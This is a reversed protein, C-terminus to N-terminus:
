RDSKRWIKNKEAEKVLEDRFDPHAIQILSEAREWTSKGILNAMGWETVIFYACSRPDSVITGSQFAPVIRSKHRNEKKDFYTSTMCIFSKGGKSLFGGTLFDLQGGTGSIQRFGSSESSVQGFLDAEVCNNITIMKDNLAMIEPSNVYDVPYSLHDRNEAVWEYVEHSGLAFTWVSKGKDINKKSNTIKGSRYLDYFADSMLETHIGLDKLDSQAIFKGVASPVSGIGLEITSGDEIQDVIQKAIRLDLDTPEGARMEPLPGHEGEVIYDVDSIHIKEDKGGFVKPLKENVELIVIKSKELIAKSASNTLSFSFYGDDDMPAVSMMAVDVIIHNRYIMPKWRYDLPVFDCLGKEYLKREYNGLYTSEYHFTKQEPDREVVQLPRVALLGRVRINSLTDKRDALAKDLLEPMSLTCGFDVWDGNKVVRVAEEPSRLKQQYEYRFTM